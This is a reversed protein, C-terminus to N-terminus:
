HTETDERQTGVFVFIHGDNGDKPTTKDTYFYCVWYYCLATKICLVLTFVINDSFLGTRLIVNM